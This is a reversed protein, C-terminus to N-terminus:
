RPSNTCTYKADCNDGTGNRVDCHAILDNKGLACGFSSSTENIDISNDEQVGAPILFSTEHRGDTTAEAGPYGRKGAHGGQAQPVEGLAGGPRVEQVGAGAGGGGGAQVGRSEIECVLERM